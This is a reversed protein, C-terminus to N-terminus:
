FIGYPGNKSGGLHKSTLLYNSQISQALTELSVSNPNQFAKIPPQRFSLKKNPNEIFMMFKM